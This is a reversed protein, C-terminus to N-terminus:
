PEGFRTLSPVAFFEGWAKLHLREMPDDIRGRAEDLVVRKEKRFRDHSVQTDFFQDALLEMASDFDENFVEMSLNITEYGTDANHEGGLSAARENMQMQDCHATGQFLMHETMHAIGPFDGDFRAGARISIAIASLDGPQHQHLVRFGQHEFNRLRPKASSERRM